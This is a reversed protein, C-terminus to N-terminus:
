ANEVGESPIRSFTLVAPLPRLFCLRPDTLPSDLRTSVEGHRDLSPLHPTPVYAAVTSFNELFRAVPPPRPWTSLLPPRESRDFVKKMEGSGSGTDPTSQHDPISEFSSGMIRSCRPVYTNVSLRFLPGGRTFPILPSLFVSFERPTKILRKKANRKEGREGGEERGGGRKDRGTYEVIERADRSRCHGEIKTETEALIRGREYGNRSQWDFVLAEQSVSRSAPPQVFKTDGQFGECRTTQVTEDIKIRHFLQSCLCPRHSRICQPPM